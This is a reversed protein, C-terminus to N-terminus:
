SVVLFFKRFDVPERQNSLGLKRAQCAFGWLILDGGWHGRGVLGKDGARPVGRWGQRQGEQEGLQFGETKM